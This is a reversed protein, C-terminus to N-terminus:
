AKGELRSAESRIARIADDVGESCSLMFTDERDIAECIVAAREMGSAQAKALEAELSEICELAADVMEPPCGNEASLRLGQKVSESSM